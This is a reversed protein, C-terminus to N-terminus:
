QVSNQTSNANVETHFAHVNCTKCWQANFDTWAIAWPGIKQAKLKIVSSSMDRKCKSADGQKLNIPFDGVEPLTARNCFSM